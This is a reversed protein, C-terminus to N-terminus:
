SPCYSTLLVNVPSSLSVLETPPVIHLDLRRDLLSAAAESIYSCFTLWQCLFGLNLGRSGLIPYLAHGGLRYSGAFSDTFGSRPRAVDSNHFSGPLLFFRVKPNLRGYPEEDKPKFVSVLTLASLFFPFSHRSVCCDTCSRGSKSSCFIFWFIRENDDQSSNRRCNRKERISGVQLRTATLMKVHRCLRSM